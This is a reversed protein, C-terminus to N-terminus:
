ERMTPMRRVEDATRKPNAGAKLTNFHNQILNVNDGDAGEVVTAGDYDEGRPRKDEYLLNGNILAINRDPRDPHSYISLRGNGYQQLLDALKERTETDKLEPGVVVGVEYGEFLAEAVNQVLAGDDRVLCMNNQRKERPTNIIWDRRLLRTISVGHRNYHETRFIVGLAAYPSLAYLKEDIDRKLEILPGLFHREQVKEASQAM